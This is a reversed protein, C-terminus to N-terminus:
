PLDRRRSNAESKGDPTLQQIGRRPITVLGRQTLDFLRWNCNKRWRAERAVRLLAHDDATFQKGWRGEIYDLIEARSASGGLESLAILVLSESRHRDVWGSSGRPGFQRKRPHGDRLPGAVETFEGENNHSGVKHPEARVLPGLIDMLESETVVGRRAMDALVQIAKSVNGM